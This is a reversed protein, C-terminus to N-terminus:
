ETLRRNATRRISPLCCTRFCIKALVGDCKQLSGGVNEANCDLLLLIDARVQVNRKVAILRKEPVNIVVDLVAQLCKYALSGAVGLVTAAISLLASAAPTKM